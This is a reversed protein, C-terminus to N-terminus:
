WKSVKESTKKVVCFDDGTGNINPGDEQISSNDTFDGMELTDTDSEPGLSSCLEPNHLSQTKRIHHM